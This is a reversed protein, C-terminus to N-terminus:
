RLPGLPSPACGTTRVTYTVSTIRWTGGQRMLTFADDGCHSFSGGIHFDYPAWVSAVDGEVQVRPSWIREVWPQTAAGLDRLYEEDTSVAVVPGQPSERLSYFRSGPALTARSGAVDGATMTTLFRHLADLVEAEAETAGAPTEGTAHGRPAAADFMWALIWWRTGDDFLQISNVGSGTVAGGPEESSAYSSWVHVISGHRQIRRATEWEYFGRQRAGSFRDHYGDVTMAALTPTGNPDRGAIAVLADPHHLFRDRARDPRSGAPGSVVEYYAELIADLTAVDEPFAPAPPVPAAPPVVGGGTGCASVGLLVALWPALRRARTGVTAPM